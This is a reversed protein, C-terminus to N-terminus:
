HSRSANKGGQRTAGRKRLKTKPIKQARGRNEVTKIQRPKPKSPRRRRKPRYGDTVYDKLSLPDLKTNEYIPRTNGAIRKIEAQTLKRTEILLDHQLTALRRQLRRMVEVRVVRHEKEIKREVARIKSKIAKAEPGDFYKRDIYESDVAKAAGIQLDHLENILKELKRRYRRMRTTAGTLVKCMDLYRIRGYHNASIASLRHAWFLCDTNQCYNVDEIIGGACETLCYHRVARSISKTRLHQPTLPYRFDVCVAPLGSLYRSKLERLGQATSDSATDSKKLGKKRLCVILTGDEELNVEKTSRKKTM